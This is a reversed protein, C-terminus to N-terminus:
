DSGTRPERRSVRWEPSNRTEGLRFEVGIRGTLYQDVAGGAFDRSATRDAPVTHMDLAYRTADFGATVYFGPTLEYGATVFGDLAQATAHPFWENSTLQGLGLIVRYGLGVGFRLRGFALRADLGPRLYDYKADPVYNRNVTSGNAATGLPDHDSDISFSHNGYMFSVGIEHLAIPLRFRAGAVIEQMTTGYDQGNSGISSSAGLSRAIGVIIGINAAMNRTFHAGPYYGVRAELAPWLPLHYPHLAGNVDQHYEFSRSFAQMGGALELLVPKRGNADAASDRKRDRAEAEENEKAEREEDTEEQAVAKKPKPEEPAEAEEKPEEKKTEPASAQELVPDLEEGASEDIKKLLKPLKAGKLTTEGLVKGDAGNRVTLKVSWGSKQQKVEGDVFAAARNDTASKVYESMDSPPPVRASQKKVVEHNGKSLASVVAERVEKKKAGTFNDVVVVAALAQTSLGMSLAFALAFSAQKM